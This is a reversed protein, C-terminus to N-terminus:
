KKVKQVINKVLSAIMQLELGNVSSFFAPNACTKM